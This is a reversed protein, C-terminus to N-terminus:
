ANVPRIVQLSMGRLLHGHRQLFERVHPADLHAQLSAEDRWLEAVIVVNERPTVAVPLPSSLEIGPSYELCGPELLVLPVLSLFASLFEQRRGPQVEITAIVRIMAPPHLGPSLLASENGAAANKVTGAEPPGARMELGEV